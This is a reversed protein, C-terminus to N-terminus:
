GLVEAGLFSGRSPFGLGEGGSCSVCAKCRGDRDLYYDPECQKGCDSSGQPCLQQATLGPFPLLSAGPWAALGGGCGSAM